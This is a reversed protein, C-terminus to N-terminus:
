KHKNRRRLLELLKPEWDKLSVDDNVWVSLQRYQEQSLALLGLKEYVEALAISAYCRNRPELKQSFYRSIAQLAAELSQGEVAAQCEAQLDAPLPATAIKGDDTPMVYNKQPRSPTAPHNHDLSEQLWALTEPDVCPILEGKDAFGLEALGIHRNFFRRTEDEIAQAIDMRSFHVAYRYSLYHGGLWYPSTELSKELKQWWGEGGGRKLQERYEHRLDAPPAMLPIRGNADTPPLSDIGQWIMYRRLRFSFSGDPDATQQHLLLQQCLQRVERDALTTGGKRATGPNTPRMAAAPAAAEASTARAPQVGDVVRISRILSSIGVEGLWSDEQNLRKLAALSGTIGMDQPLFEQADLFPQLRQSIQALRNGWQKKGRPTSVPPFGTSKWSEIFGALLSLVLPVEDQKGLHLLSLILATLCHIDKAKGSLLELATEKLKGWDITDQQLSGIKRLEDTMFGYRSDADAPHGAASDGKVPNMVALFCPHTSFGNINDM